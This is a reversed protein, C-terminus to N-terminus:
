LTTNCRFYFRLQMRKYMYGHKFDWANIYTYFGNTTVEMKGYIEGIGQKPKRDIKLSNITAPITFESVKKNTLKTRFVKGESEHESYLAKAKDNNLSTIVAFGSFLSIGAVIELTDGKFSCDCGLFMPQIENINEQESRSTALYEREGTEQDISFIKLSTDLPQLENINLTDTKIRTLIGLGNRFQTDKEKKVEESLKEFLTWYETKLTTDVKYQGLVLQSFIILIFLLSQKM